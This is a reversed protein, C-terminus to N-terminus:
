RQFEQVGASPDVFPISKKKDKEKEAVELLILSVFLFFDVM